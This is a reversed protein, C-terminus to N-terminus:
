RTSYITKKNQAECLFDYIAKHKNLVAFRIRGIMPELSKEEKMEESFLEKVENLNYLYMDNKLIDKILIPDTHMRADIEYLNM